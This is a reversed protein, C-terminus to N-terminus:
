GPSPCQLVDILKAGVTFPVFTGRPGLRIPCIIEKDSADIQEQTELDGKWGLSMTRPWAPAATPADLLPMLEDDLGLLTVSFGPGDLSSVFTGSMSRAVEVGRADLQRLVEEAIVSLELVSLGGLNNVM